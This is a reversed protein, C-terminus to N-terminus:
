LDLDVCCRRRCLDLVCIRLFKGLVRRSSANPKPFIALNHVRRRLDLIYHSEIMELLVSIAVAVHQQRSLWLLAGVAYM